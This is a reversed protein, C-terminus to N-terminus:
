APDTAEAVRVRRVVAVTADDPCLPAPTGARLREAVGRVYAALMDPQTARPDQRIAGAIRAAAEVPDGGDPLRNATALTRRLGDPNRFHLDREWLRALPGFPAGTPTPRDAGDVLAGVGDTGVVCSDIEEVPLVRAQFRLAEPAFGDVRLGPLGYGVYPPRNDPYPGIRDVEGNVAVVGDGIWFLVADAETLAVGVATFLFFAEAVSGVSDGMAQALLRLHTCADLRVRELLEEYYAQASVDAPRTCRDLQRQLGTGILRAGIAAGVHSRPQRTCGDCVVAVLCARGRAVHADDQNPAGTATHAAGTLSGTAAEFRASM